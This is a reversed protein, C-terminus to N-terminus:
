ASLVFQENKFMGDKPIEGQRVATTVEGWWWGVASVTGPVSVFAKPDMHM